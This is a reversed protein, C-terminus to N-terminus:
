QLKLSHTLPAKAGPPEPKSAKLKKLPVQAKESM